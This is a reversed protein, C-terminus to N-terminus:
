PEEKWTECKSMKNHKNRVYNPDSPTIHITEMCKGPCPCLAKYYKKERTVRWGLAEAQRILAELEPKPHRPRRGSKM